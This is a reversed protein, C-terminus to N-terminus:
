KEGLVPKRSPVAGDRSLCRGSSPQIGACNLITIVVALSRDTLNPHTGSEWPYEQVVHSASRRSWPARAIGTRIVVARSSDPEARDIPRCCSNAARDM